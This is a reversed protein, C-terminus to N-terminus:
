AKEEESPEIPDDDLMLQFLQKSSVEDRQLLSELYHNTVAQMYINVAPAILFRQKVLVLLQDMLRSGAHTVISDYIERLHVSDHWGRSGFTICVDSYEKKMIAPTVAIVAM